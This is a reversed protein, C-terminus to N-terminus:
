LLQFYCLLIPPSMQGFVSNLGGRCYPLFLAASALENFPDRMVKIVDLYVEQHVEKRLGSSVPKSIISFLKPAFTLWLCANTNIYITKYKQNTCLVPSAYYADTLDSSAIYWDQRVVNLFASLNDIKIYCYILNQNFEKLNLVLRERLINSSACGKESNSVQKTGSKELFRSMEKSFLM